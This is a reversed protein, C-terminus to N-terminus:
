GGGAAHFASRQDQRLVIWTTVAAALVEGDRSWVVSAAHRKRGDAHRRLGAVVVTEGVAPRRHASVAMRGLVMPDPEDPDVIWSLGSPCDLAAWLVPLTALGDPGAVSAEPTWPWAVMGPAGVPAPFLRLGDGSRRHPGCTFCNPFPHGAAYDEVDFRGAAEVM